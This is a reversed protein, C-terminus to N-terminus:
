CLSTNINVQACDQTRTQAPREKRVNLVHPEGKTCRRPSLIEPQVMIAFTCNVTGSGM